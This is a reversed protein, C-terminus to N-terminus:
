KAEDREIYQVGQRILDEVVMKIQRHTFQRAFFRPSCAAEVAVVFDSFTVDPSNSGRWASHGRGGARVAHAAKACRVIATEICHRSFGHKMSPAEGTWGAPVEGFAGLAALYKVMPRHKIVADHKKTGRPVVADRKKRAERPATHSTNFM